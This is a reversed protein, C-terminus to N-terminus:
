RELRRGLNTQDSPVDNSDGNGATGAITKPDYHTPQPQPRVPAFQCSSRSSRSPLADGDSHCRGRAREAPPLVELCTTWWGTEITEVLPEPLGAARMSAAQARWDYAVPVLEARAAGRELELVAYWTERRGDNAPRGVVGVNVVLQGRVRRQWPLGTHSCLLVDADTLTLRRQLERPSLSEWLFDNIALPSGHVMHTDVGDIPEHRELPLARMWAAFERSTHALTYEYILQAYHNDREDTYGCGCDPDGRGVAVDYNGAICDVGHDLLLPWIADCEAGFGGLDGLCFIRECGRRRADSLLAELAWPNAYPGGFAAIRTM